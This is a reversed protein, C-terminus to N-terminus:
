PATGHSVCSDRRYIKWNDDAHILVFSKALWPAAAAAVFNASGEIVNVPKVPAMVICADGFLARPGPVTDIPEMYGIAWVVPVGVPPPAGLMVPFPNAYDLSAIKEGGIGLANIAALGDNIARGYTETPADSDIFNKVPVALRGGGTVVVPHLSGTASAVALGAGVLASVLQPVLVLACVALLLITKGRGARWDGDRRTAAFALLAAACFPAVFFTAPQTNTINLALQVIAFTLILALCRRVGIIGARIQSMGPVALLVVALLAGWSHAVRIAADGMALIRRAHAAERYEGLLTGPRIDTIVLMGATMAAFLLAIVALHRWTRVDTAAGAETGLLGAAITVFGLGLASIKASLLVTLLIATIVAESLRLDRPRCSTFCQLMLAGIAAVSLRNYFGSLSVAFVSWGYATPASAVFALIACILLCVAPARDLRRVGVITGCIVIIAAYVAGTLAIVFNGAGFIRWLWAGVHFLGFGMPNYFDIGDRQGEVIRWVCDLFMLNDYPFVTTPATASIVFDAAVIAVSLGLAQRLLRDTGDRVIM